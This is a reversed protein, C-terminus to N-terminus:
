STTERYFASARRVTVTGTAQSTISVDLTIGDPGPVCEIPTGPVLAVTVAEGVPAATQTVPASGSHLTVQLLDDNETTLPARLLRTQAVASEDGLAPYPEFRSGQDSFVTAPEGVPAAISGTWELAGTRAKAILWLPGPAVEAPSAFVVEVWGPGADEVPPLEASALPAGAPDPAPAAQLELAIEAAGAPRVLLAVGHLVIPETVDARRAASFRGSVALGLPGPVDTDQLPHARWEPFDGDLELEIREVLWRPGGTAASWVLPVTQAELSKTQLPLEDSGGWLADARRVVAIDRSPVFDPLLVGPTDAAILVEATVPETAEAILANLDDALGHVEVADSLPAPSTWFPLRDNVSARVGAPLSATRLKCRSAFADATVSGEKVQVYLKQTDIGTLNVVGTGDTPPTAATGLATPYLPTTAFQTGMWPLVLTITEDDFRVQLISRIGGFDVIFGTHGSTPGAPSGNAAYVAPSVTVEAGALDAIAGFFAQGSLKMEAREVVADPAFTGVTIREDGSLDHYEPEATWVVWTAVNLPSYVKMPAPAFAVDGLEAAISAAFEAASM